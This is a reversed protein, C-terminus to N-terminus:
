PSTTGALHQVLFRRYRQAVARPAEAADPEALREVVRGVVVAAVLGPQTARGLAVAIAVVALSGLGGGAWRLRRYTGVAHAGAVDTALLERLQLNTLAFVPVAVALILAYSGLQEAGTFRALAWVLVWQAGAWGTNGITAWAAATRLRTTTM